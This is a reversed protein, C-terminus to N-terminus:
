NSLRTPTVVLITRESMYFVDNKVGEVAVKHARGAVVAVGDADLPAVAPCVPDAMLKVKVSACATAIISFYLQFSALATKQPPYLIELM